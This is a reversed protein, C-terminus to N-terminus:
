VTTCNEKPNTRIYKKTKKRKLNNKHFLREHIIIGKKLAKKILNLFHKEFYYEKANIDNM